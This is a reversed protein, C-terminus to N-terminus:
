RSNKEKVKGNYLMEIIAAVLFCLIMSVLVHSFFHAGKLMQYAGLVWGLSISSVLWFYRWFTSKLAFFLIVLAFATVPHGAPFCQGKDCEGHLIEGHPSKQCQLQKFDATKEEFIRFHPYEGSYLALQNPCYINTFKKINGVILPILALGLFILMFKHRNKYFFQNKFLFKFFFQNNKKQNESKFGLISLVLFAAITLGLLIKPLNYFYFRKIPEDADILWEGTDQNFFHKQLEVDFNSYRAFCLAAALLILNIAFLFYYQKKTM